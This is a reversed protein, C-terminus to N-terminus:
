RRFDSSVFNTIIAWRFKGREVPEFGHYFPAKIDYALATNRLKLSEFIVQEFTNTAMISLGGSRSGGTGNIFFVVNYATRPGDDLFAWDDRHPAVVSGAVTMTVLFSYCSLEDDAGVVATFRRAFAESRLYDLFRRLMPHQDLYAPDGGHGRRWGFGRDWSKRLDSAPALYCRKPWGALLESHFEKDLVNDLFAWGNARLDAQRQELAASVLERREERDDSAGASRSRLLREVQRKAQILRRAGLRLHLGPLHPFRLQKLYQPSFAQAM